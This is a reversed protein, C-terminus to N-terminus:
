VADASHQVVKLPVRSIHEDSTRRQSYSSADYRQLANVHCPTRSLVVYLEMKHV